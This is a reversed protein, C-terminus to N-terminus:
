LLKEFVYPLCAEEPIPKGALMTHMDIWERKNEAIYTELDHAELFNGTRQDVQKLAFERVDPYKNMLTMAGEIYHSWSRQQIPVKRIGETNIMHDFEQSKFFKIYVEMYFKVMELVSSGFLSNFADADIYADALYFFDKDLYNNNYTEKYGSIAEAAL